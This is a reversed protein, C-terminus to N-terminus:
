MHLPNKTDCTELTQKIFMILLQLNQLTESEPQLWVTPLTNVVVYAKSLADNASCVQFYPFTLNKTLIYQGFVSYFKFANNSRNM